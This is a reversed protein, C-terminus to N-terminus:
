DDSMFEGRLFLRPGERAELITDVELFKTAPSPPRPQASKRAGLPKAEPFLLLILGRSRLASLVGHDCPALSASRGELGCCEPAQFAVPEQSKITGIIM